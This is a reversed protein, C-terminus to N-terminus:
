GLGVGDMQDQVIQTRMSALGHHLAKAFLRSAPQPVPERHVVGRFVAAPQVLGLDCDAQEGPLAQALAPDSISGTQPFLSPGPVAAHIAVSDRDLPAKSAVLSALLKAVFICPWQVLEKGQGM